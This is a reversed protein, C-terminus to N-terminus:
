QEASLQVASPDDAASTTARNQGPPATLAQRLSEHIRTLRRYVHFPTPLSMLSAIERASRADEYRLAVLLQDAPALTGVAAELRELVQKQDLQDEASPRGDPLQALVESDMLVLDVLRRPAVPNRTGPNPPRGHKLRNHDLCLRRTVVVLWTTFKGRGDAVYTRLRRYSQERLREVVFAYRDMIIDYEGPTKRAVYLILRSYSELFETWAQEQTPGEASELLRRVQSPLLRAHEPSLRDGM